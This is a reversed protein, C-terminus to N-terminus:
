KDEAVVSLIRRDVVRVNKPKNSRLNNILDSDAMEELMSQAQDSTDAQLHIIVDKEIEEMYTVRFPTLVYDEARLTKSSLESAPVIKVKMKNKAECEKSHHHENM